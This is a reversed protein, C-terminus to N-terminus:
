CSGEPAKVVVLGPVELGGHCKDMKPAIMAFMCCCGCVNAVPLGYESAIQVGDNKRDFLFLQGVCVGWRRRLELRRRIRRRWGREIATYLNVHM